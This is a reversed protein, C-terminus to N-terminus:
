KILLDRGIVISTSITDFFVNSCVNGSCRTRYEDIDVTNNYNRIATITAPSLVFKYKPTLGKRNYSNNSNIIVSQVTSNNSSCDWTGVNDYCWNAGVKRGKGDEGIFPNSTDITRFELNLDGVVIEPKAIYSCKSNNSLNASRMNTGFSISFPVSVTGNDTFKSYLGYNTTTNNSPSDVLLGTIKDIYVKPMKYSVNFVKTYEVYNTQKNRSTNGATVVAELNQGGLSVNQIFSSYQVSSFPDTNVDGQTINTNYLYCKLTLTGTALNGQSGNGGLYAMGSKVTPFYTGVNSNLTFDSNCYALKGNIDTTYTYKSLNTATFEDSSSATLCTANLTYTNGSSCAAGGTKSFDLLNRYDTTSSSEKYETYLLIRDIPNNNVRQACSKCAKEYEAKTVKTANSGYYITSGNEVAERCGCSKKYESESVSKKNLDYYTTKGDKTVITCANVTEAIIQSLDFRNYGCGSYNDKDLAYIGHGSDTSITCSTSRTKFSQAITSYYWVFQDLADTYSTTTKKCPYEVYQCGWQSCYSARTCTDDVTNTHKYSGCKQGKSYSFDNKILANITGTVFRNGNNYDFCSVTVLPEVILYDGQQYNYTGGNNYGMLDLISYLNEYSKNTLLYTIQSPTSYFLGWYRTNGTIGSVTDFTVNANKTCTCSSDKYATAFDYQNNPCSCFNKGNGDGPRLVIYKPETGPVMTGNERYVAVKIGQMEGGYIGNTIAGDSGGSNEGRIDTNNNNDTVDLAHTNINVFISILLVLIIILRKKM